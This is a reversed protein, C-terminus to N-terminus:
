RNISLCPISRVNSSCFLRACGSTIPATALTIKGALYHHCSQFLYGVVTAGCAHGLAILPTREEATPNTNDVVVSRGVALAATVLEQQRREKHRNYGMRDKSVQVHTAALRARYFASKGSAQLGILITLDMHMCRLVYNGRFSAARIISATLEQSLV